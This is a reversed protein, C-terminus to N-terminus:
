KDMLVKARELLVRNYDKLLKNEVELRRIERKDRISSQTM